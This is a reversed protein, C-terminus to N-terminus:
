GHSVAVSLMQSIEAEAPVNGAVVVKGDIVLVPTFIVGRRVFERLERIRTLEYPVGLKDAASRTTSELLDCKASGSGLIEIKM